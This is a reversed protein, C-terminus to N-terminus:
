IRSNSSMELKCPENFDLGKLDASVLLLLLWGFKLSSAFGLVLGPFIPKVFERDHYGSKLLRNKWSM